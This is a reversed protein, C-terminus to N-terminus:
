PQTPEPPKHYQDIVVSVVVGDYSTTTKQYDGDQLEQGPNTVNEVVTIIEM